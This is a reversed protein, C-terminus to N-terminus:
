GNKKEKLHNLNDKNMIKSVLFKKAQYMAFEHNSPYVAEISSIKAAKSDFDFKLEVFQFKGELDQIISFGTGALDTESAVQKAEVGQMQELKEKLQSIIEVLEKKTKSELDKSM